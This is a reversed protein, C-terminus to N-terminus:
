KLVAEALPLLSKGNYGPIRRIIKGQKYFVISPYHITIDANQLVVSDLTQLYSAPLRNARAVATALGRDAKPDLIVTVPYTLKLERLASVETVSLSMHPSWIYVLGGKPNDLLLKGLDLDSFSQTGARTGLNKEECGPAKWELTVVSKETRARVFTSSESLHFEVTGFDPVVGGVGQPYAIWKSVIGLRNLFTTVQDFCAISRPFVSQGLICGSFLLTMLVVFIRFM